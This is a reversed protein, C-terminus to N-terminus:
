LWCLLLLPISARLSCGWWRAKKQLFYGSLSSVKKLPVKHPGRAFRRVWFYAAWGETDKQFPSQLGRKTEVSGMLWHM